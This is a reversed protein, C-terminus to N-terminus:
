KRIYYKIAFLGFGAILFFGCSVVCVIANECGGNMSSGCVTGATVCITGTFDLITNPTEKKVKMIKQRVNM